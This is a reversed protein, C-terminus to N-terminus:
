CNETVMQARARATAKSDEYGGFVYSVFGWIGLLMALVKIGDLKEHFFFVALIPVVPLTLTSIVNSFLSSILFILGFTGLSFLQWALACWVLTMFYATKGSSFNHSEAGLNRFEGSALLGVACILAAVMFVLAQSIMVVNFNQAVKQFVLQMVALLLGYVACALITCVFGLIFHTKNVGVPRESGSHIGLLIASFSLIVVSNLIYPTIRQKVVLFSFLANFGLQTACLLSYTSVPM